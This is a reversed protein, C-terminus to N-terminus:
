GIKAVGSGKPFRKALSSHIEMRAIMEECIECYTICRITDVFRQEESDYLLNAM